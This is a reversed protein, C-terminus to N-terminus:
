SATACSASPLQESRRVLRITQSAKPNIQIIPPSAVVDQTPTLVDDGDKQEWLYVRVQGYVAAEGLNQLTIGSAGPRRALQDDGPLDAFQRGGGAIGAVGAATRDDARLDM